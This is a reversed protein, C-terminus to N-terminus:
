SIRKELDKRDTEIKQIQKKLGKIEKSVTRIKNILAIEKNSSKIYDDTEKKTSM